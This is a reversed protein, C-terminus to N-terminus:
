PRCGSLLRAHARGDELAPTVLIQVPVDEVRDKDCAPDPRPLLRRVARPSGQKRPLSGSQNRRRDVEEHCACNIRLAATVSPSPSPDSVKYEKGSPSPFPCIGQDVTSLM